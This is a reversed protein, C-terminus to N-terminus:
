LFALSTSPTRFMLECSGRFRCSVDLGSHQRGTFDGLGLAEVQGTISFYYKPGKWRGERLAKSMTKHTTIIDVPKTVPEGVTPITETKDDTVSQDESTNQESAREAPSVTSTSASVPTAVRSPM